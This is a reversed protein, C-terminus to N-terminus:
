PFSDKWNEFHAKSILWLDSVFSQLPFEWSNLVNMKDQHNERSTCVSLNFDTSFVM